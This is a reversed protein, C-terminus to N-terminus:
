AARMVVGDLPIRSLRVSGFYPTMCCAKGARKHSRIMGPLLAIIDQGCGLATLPTSNSTRSCCGARGVLQFALHTPM